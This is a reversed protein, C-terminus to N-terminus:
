GGLADEFLPDEYILLDEDKLKLKEISNMRIEADSWRPNYPKLEKIIEGIPKKLLIYLKDM